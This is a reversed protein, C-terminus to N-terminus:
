RSFIKEIVIFGVIVNGIIWFMLAMWLLNGLVIWGSSAEVNGLKTHRGSWKYFGVTSVVCVASLLVGIFLGLALGKIGGCRLGTLFSSASPVFVAFAMTLERLTM